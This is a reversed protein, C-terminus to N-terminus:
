CTGRKFVGTVRQENMSHHLESAKQRKWKGWGGKGNRKAKEHEHPNQKQTSSTPHALAEIDVIDSEMLNETVEIIDEILADCMDTM